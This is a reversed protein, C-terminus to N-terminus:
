IYIMLIPYIIIKIVLAKLIKLILKNDNILISNNLNIKASLNSAKCIDGLHSALGFGSIDTMTVCENNKAAEYAFQNDIKLFDFLNKIDQSLM